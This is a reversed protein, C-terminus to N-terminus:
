KLSKFFNYLETDDYKKAIAILQELNIARDNLMHATHYSYTNEFLEKKNKPKVGSITIGIVSEMETSLINFDFMILQAGKNEYGDFQGGKICWNTHSCFQNLADATKVRFLILGTDFNNFLIEIDGIDKEDKPNRTKNSRDTILQVIKEQTFIAKLGNFYSKFDKFFVPITKFRSIKEFFIRREEEITENLFGDCVQLISRLLKANDYLEIKDKDVEEKEINDYFFFKKFDKNTFDFRKNFDTKLESAFECFIEKNANKYQELIRVHDLLIEFTKM